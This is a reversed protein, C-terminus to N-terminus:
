ASRTPGCVREHETYPLELADMIRRRTRLQPRNWGREIARITTWDVGAKEALEERTLLRDEREQRLDSM